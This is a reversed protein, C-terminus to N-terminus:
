ISAFIIDQYKQTSRLLETLFTLGYAAIFPGIITGIGGIGIGMILVTVSLWLDFVDPGVHRLYVAMLGGGVGSM